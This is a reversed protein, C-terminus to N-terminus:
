LFINGPKVYKLIFETNIIETLPVEALFSFDTFLLRSISELLKQKSISPVLM